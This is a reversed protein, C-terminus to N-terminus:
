VIAGHGDQGGFLQAVGEARVFEKMVYAHRQLPAVAHPQDARIADAFRRQQQGQGSQQLRRGAADVAGLPQRQAVQTLLRHQGKGPALVRDVLLHQGDKGAQALLLRMQGRQLRGHGFIVRRFQEVLVAAGLLLELSLAAILILDLDFVDEEAQAKVGLLPVRRQQV